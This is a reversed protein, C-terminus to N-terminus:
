PAVVEIHVDDMHLPVTAHLQDAVLRATCPGALRVDDFLVLGAGSGDLTTAVADDYMPAVGASQWLRIRVDDGALGGSIKVRCTFPEGATQTVGVSIRLQGPM